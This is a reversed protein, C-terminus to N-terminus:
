VSAAALIDAVEIRGLPDAVYKEGDMLAFYAATGTCSCGLIRLSVEKGGARRLQSLDLRAVARRPDNIALRLSADHVEAATTEWSSSM